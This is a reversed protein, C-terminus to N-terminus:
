GMGSSVSGTYMKSFGLQKDWGLITSKRGRGAVLRAIKLEEVRGDQVFSGEGVGGQLNMIGVTSRGSGTFVGM